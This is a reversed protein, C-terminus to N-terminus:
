EKVYVEEAGLDKILQNLEDAKGPEPHMVIVFKDDTARPDITNDKQGPFLKARASFTALSLITVSFIILILTIVIFSPFSNFPKGGYNLPWSIVSTYYLFSLVAIGAFLGYFWAAISMKSKKGMFHLAEHVPYPTYIENIVLEKEKASKLAKVLEEENKFVGVLNM